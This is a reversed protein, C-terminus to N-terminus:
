KILVGDIQEKFNEITEIERVKSEFEQLLPVFEHGTVIKALCYFACCVHMHIVQTKQHYYILYKLRM